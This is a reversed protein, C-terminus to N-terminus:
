YKLPQLCVPWELLIPAEAVAQLDSVLFSDENERFKGIAHRVMWNAENRLHQGVDHYFKLRQTELCGQIWQLNAQVLKEEVVKWVCAIKEYLKSSTDDPVLDVGYKKLVDVADISWQGIEEAEYKKRGTQFVRGGLHCLKSFDDLLLKVDPIKQEWYHLSATALEKMKELTLEESTEVIPINCLDISVHYALEAAQTLRIVSAESLERLNLVNNAHPIPKKLEHESIEHLPRTVRTNCMECFATVVVNIDEAPMPPWATTTSMVEPSTLTTTTKQDADHSIATVTHDKFSM